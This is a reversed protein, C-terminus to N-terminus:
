RKRLNKKRKRPTVRPRTAKLPEPVDVVPTDSSVDYMKNKSKRWLDYGVALLLLGFGLCAGLLISAFDIINFM